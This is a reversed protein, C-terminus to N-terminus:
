RRRRSSVPRRRCKASVQCLRASCGPNSGTILKAPHRRAWRPSQCRSRMRVSSVRAVWRRAWRARVMAQPSLSPNGVLFRCNQSSVKGLLEYCARPSRCPVKSRSTPPRAVWGVSDDRRLGTEVGFTAARVGLLSSFCGQRPRDCHPRDCYPLPSRGAMVHM